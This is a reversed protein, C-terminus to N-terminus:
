EKKGEVSNASSSISALKRIATAMWKCVSIVGSDGYRESYADAIKAAEELGDRRGVDYAERVVEAVTM